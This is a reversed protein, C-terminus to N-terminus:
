HKLTQTTYSVLLDEEDLLLVEAVRGFVTVPRDLKVTHQVRGGYKVRSSTVAGTVTYTRLYLGAVHQGTRNWSM